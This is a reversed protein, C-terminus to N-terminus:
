SKTGEKNVGKQDGMRAKTCHKGDPIKRIMSENRMIQLEFPRKLQVNSGNKGKVRYPKPDYTTSFKTQQPQRFLM